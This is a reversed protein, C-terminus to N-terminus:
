EPRTFVWTTIEGPSVISVEWDKFQSAVWTVNRWGADQVKKASVAGMQRITKSLEDDTFESKEGNWYRQILSNIARVVFDPLEGFEPVALDSPSIPKTKM